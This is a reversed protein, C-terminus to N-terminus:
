LKFQDLADKLKSVQKWFEAVIMNFREVPDKIHRYNQELRWLTARARQQKNPEASWQDIIYSELFEQRKKEFAEPDGKFLENWEDFPIRNM